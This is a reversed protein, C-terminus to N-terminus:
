VESNEKLIREIDQLVTIYIDYSEAKYKDEIKRQLENSSDILKNYKEKGWFM